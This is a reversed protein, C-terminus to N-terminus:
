RSPSCSDAERSPGGEFHNTLLTHLVGIVQTLYNRTAFLRCPHDELKPTPRPVSRVRLFILKNCFTVIPRPSSHFRQIFSRVLSFPCSIQYISYLCTREHCTFHITSLYLSPKAHLSNIQSLIPVLPPCKHVRYHVNLNWLTNTLEQTAACSAAEWSPCLEM